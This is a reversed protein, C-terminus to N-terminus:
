YMPCLVQVDDVPDLGFARPIRQTVLERILLRAHAGDRAQVLYFDSGEAPADPVEGRLIAHAVQVIASGKQQRFIETLATVAVRGSGIVDALVAGPGVPPLQNQDGVLVLAMGPPVARLLSYALQVDLMSAEDVVLMDGELPLEPGRQFRHVGPTYELLRHLT